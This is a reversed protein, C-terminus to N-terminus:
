NITTRGNIVAEPPLVVNEPHLVTLDCNKLSGYSQEAHSVIFLQPIDTSTTLNTVVNFAVNRHKSDFTSGFEDLQLPWDKLDLCEMAVIRFALDFIECTSNNCEYVKVDPAKFRHDIEVPFKYDLDLDDQVSIPLISLPYSWVHKVFQNMRSIFWNIFGMLGKAILGSSPSMAQEACKLLRVQEEYEAIQTKLQSLQFQQNDIKSVSQELIYIEERFLNILRNFHEVRLSEKLSEVRTQRQELLGELDTICSIILKFIQVAQEHHRIEATLSRIREQVSALEQNTVDILAEQAQYDASNQIQAIEVLQNNHIQDRELQEINFMLPLQNQVTELTKQATASIYADQGVLAEWLPNLIPWATIIRNYRLRLDFIMDFGASRAKAQELKDRADEAMSTSMTLSDICGEYGKPDWGKVWVYQCRPCTQEGHDRAHEFEKIMLRQTEANKDHKIIEQKIRDILALQDRQSRQSISPDDGGPFYSFIESLVPYVADFASKFEAVNTRLLLPQQIMRRKDVLEASIQKQKRFLEELSLQQSQQGHNFNKHLEDLRTHLSSEHEREHELKGTIRSIQHNCYEISVDKHLLKGYLCRSLAKRAADLQKISSDLMRERESIANEVESRVLNGPKAELLRELTHRYTALRDRQIAIEEDSLVKSLEGAYRNQAITAAGQLDRIRSRLVGYYRFAYAYDARSLITFWKRRTSVDMTSFRTVGDVVQQIETTIGFVDKILARFDTATSGSFINVGDQLLQYEGSKGNFRQIVQYAHGRHTSELIKYGDKEYQTHPSPLPTIERLLSSKGSGNMGLILQLRERPEMRILRISNLQLRKYGSLEIRTHEM